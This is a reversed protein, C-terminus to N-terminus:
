KIYIQRNSQRISTREYKNEKMVISIYFLIQILIIINFSLTMLYRQPIRLRFTDAPM